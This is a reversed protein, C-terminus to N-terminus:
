GTLLDASTDILSLCMDHVQGVLEEAKIAKLMLRSAEESGIARISGKLSLLIDLAMRTFSEVEDRRRNRVIIDTSMDLYDRRCYALMEESRSLVSRITDHIDSIVEAMEATERLLRRITKQQWEQRLPITQHRMAEEWNEKEYSHM